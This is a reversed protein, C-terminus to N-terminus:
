LMKWTFEPDIDAIRREILDIKEKDEEDEEEFGLDDVRNIDRYVDWDEDNMGFGDDSSTSEGPKHHMLKDTDNANVMGAVAALRKKTALSGRKSAM